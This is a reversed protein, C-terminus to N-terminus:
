FPVETDQRNGCKLCTVKVLKGLDIKGELTYKYDKLYEFWLKDSGCKLCTEKPLDEM